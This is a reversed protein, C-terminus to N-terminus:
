SSRKQRLRHPFDYPLVDIYLKDPRAVVEHRYACFGESETSNEPYYHFPDNLVLITSNPISPFPVVYTGSALYLCPLLDQRKKSCKLSNEFVGVPSTLISNEPKM